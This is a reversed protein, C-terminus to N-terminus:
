SIATESKEPTNPPVSLGPSDTNLLTRIDAQLSSALQEGAGALISRLLLGLQGAIGLTSATKFFFTNVRRFADWLKEMDSPYLDQLEEVKLGCSEQLLEDVKELFSKEIVTPAEGEVPPAVDKKKGVEGLFPLLQMIKRTRVERVTVDRDLGDLKVTEINIM